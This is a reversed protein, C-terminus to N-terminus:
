EQAGTNHCHLLVVGCFVSVSCATGCFNTQNRRPIRSPTQKGGENRRRETAAENRDAVHGVEEGNGRLTGHGRLVNALQSRATRRQLPATRTTDSISM